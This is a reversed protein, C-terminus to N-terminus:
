NIILTINLDTKTVKSSSKSSTEDNDDQSTNTLVISATQTQQLHPHTQNKKDRINSIFSQSRHPCYVAEAQEVGFIAAM